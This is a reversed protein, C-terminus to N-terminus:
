VEGTAVVGGNREEDLEDLDDSEEGDDADGLLRSLMDLKGEDLTVLEFSEPTYDDADQAREAEAPQPRGSVAALAAVTPNNFLAQPSLQLGAQNARAILHIAVVSDGGLEFFNDAVGVESIGLLEQWIGALTQEVENRPALYPTQMEPRPHTPAPAPPQLLEAQELLRSPTFANAQEVLAQIDVTSVVVQSLTHATLVRGFAELGEETLMSRAAGAELINREAPPAETLGRPAATAVHAASADQGAQESLARTMRASDGIRKASFEEVEVLEVGREDMLVLDFTLVEDEPRNGEKSRAYCFLRGRLPGRVRVRKYSLPLYSDGGGLYQKAAGAAVDLLAPHLKYKELDAAFEEPLELVALLEGEGLHVARLSDWRPGLGEGKFPEAALDIEKPCRSLIEALDHEQRPAAASYELRGIAHERWRAQGNSGDASRVTFRFGDGSEEVVTQAERREDEGLRLINLFFVDSLTVADNRPHEDSVARAIELFATGPLLAHGGIRHEDLIWDGAVSFEHSYTESQSTSEVRHGLLPHRPEHVSPSPRATNLRLTEARRASVGVERWVDWNVSITARGRKVVDYGAFADLFLNAAAYDAQGIGGLVSNLSSCLLLFDVEVGDLVDELVRAGLVKPALVDAAAEATKLQILGGGAVGAAHIVGDIRGFRARAQSLAKVMQGRDTVDARLILVEGGHEEASQLKLIKRAVENSEDHAALWQQWEGRPPFDSRGVLVLRARVLRALHLAIELAMGGLGGTILYVGQERLRAPTGAPHELTVPELVQAWRANHRYAVAAEESEAKMEALLQEVLNSEHRTGPQPLVLDISRCALSPYEQPIVKCAGLLTSKEPCLGPEGAVSQMNNSLAFLRAPPALKQGGFAQALHLLSYFGLEQFEAFREVGTQGEPTVSLLHVIRHPLRGAAALEELLLQYDGPRRPNFTYDAPGRAVFHEGAAAVTVERGEEELRTVLRRGVGCEDLLFLWRLGEGAAGGAQSPPPAVTQRWLPTYFWTNIDARKDLSPPRAPSNSDDAEPRPEIWHRSREFPYAPLPVRRRRRGGNLGAWDVRGGAAWLQGVADLLVELAPREDQAGPLCPLVLQGAAKAPHHRTLTSLAQGPGVELLVADDLKLLEQMGAAFRVTQRLHRTWYNVDTVEEATAWAGSLNSVYPIQPASLKVTEWERAFRALVPEMMQSHFAHSARLRRCNLGRGTLQVELRGVAETEGSVVCFSHGNVAALSLGGTLLPELESEPLPVSLMAGRPLEQMLRGRAAVLRLADEPSMVGALCAAVYEGVSHGIMARPRVGYRMLTRALAYEVAFLAPQTVHTEDLQAAAWAEGGEAPYLLGRLDCGLRPLLQESCFDVQERFAPESEYLGAAMRVYQAGQGPFMFVVPREGSEAASTHLRRPDRTELAGLADDLGRCVLAARHDFQKRGVQLTYAVDAPNLEPHKQLHAHLNVLASDLATRTRASLILLQCPPAADDPAPPPAEEVVVHANTGGIGFSSVGARRPRGDTAWESLASNVYFPSNEFDIEPNAEVYHLSPPISRNELALVTKILGAV